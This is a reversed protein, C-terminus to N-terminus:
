QGSSRTRSYLYSAALLLIGLAVFASIQYFTSLQWVDWLYLKLVVLALLFLGLARDLFRQRTMGYLLLLSGYAALLISEAASIFHFRASASEATRHLIPILRMLGILLYAHATFYLLQPLRGSATTRLAAFYITAAALLLVVFAGPHQSNLSVAAALITLGGLSPILVPWDRRISLALTTVSLLLLYLFNFWWATAANGLLVLALLAGTFGLAAIAASAYRISLFVAFASVLVLLAWGALPVILDYFGVSAYLAVYLVALGCGALGQTFVSEVTGRGPLRDLRRQWEAAALIAIGALVGIVVRMEPGIWRNDAAYKFFFIIGIALTLAGIRNILTM